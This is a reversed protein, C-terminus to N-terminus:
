ITYKRIWENGIATVELEPDVPRQNLWQNHILFSKWIDVLLRDGQFLEVIESESVGGEICKLM